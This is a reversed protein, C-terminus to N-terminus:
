DTREKLEVVHSGGGRMFRWLSEALRYYDDHSLRVFYEHGNPLYFTVHVVDRLRCASISSGPALFLFEFANGNRNIVM